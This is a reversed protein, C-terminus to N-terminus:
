RNIRFENNNNNRVAVIVCYYEYVCLFTTFNNYTCKM